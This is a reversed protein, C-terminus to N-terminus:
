RLQSFIADIVAESIERGLQPDARLRSKLTTLTERAQEDPAFIEDLSQGFVERLRSLLPLPISQTSGQELRNYASFSMSLREAAERQSLHARERAERILTNPRKM